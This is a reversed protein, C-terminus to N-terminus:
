TVPQGMRSGGFAPYALDNLLGKQIISHSGDGLRSVISYSTTILRSKEGKQMENALVDLVHPISCHQGLNGVRHQVYIACVYARTLNALNQTETTQVCKFDEVM